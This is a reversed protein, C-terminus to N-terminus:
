STRRPPASSRLAPACRVSGSRVVQGGQRASVAGSTRAPDPIDPGGREHFPAAAPGSASTPFTLAPRGDVGRPSGLRGQGARRRYSSGSACSSTRCSCCSSSASWWSPRASSSCRTWRRPSAWSSRSPWASTSGTSSRATRSCAAARRRAAVPRPPRSSSPSPPTRRTAGARGPLRRDPRRGARGRRDERAGHSFLISLFVATGLTGGIQRTFTASSTAVGIQQPPVANQVALTLPQFNFGLGLGFVVMVIMTQWLPTDFEVYHFVFLSSRSCRRRRHDPVEPLPRHPSIIQGSLISGFM